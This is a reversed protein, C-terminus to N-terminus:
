AIVSALDQVVGSLKPVLYRVFVFLSAIVTGSVATVIGAMWGIVKIAIALKSESREARDEAIRKDVESIRKDMGSLRVEIKDFRAAFEKRVDGIETRIAQLTHNMATLTKDVHVYHTELATIRELESAM